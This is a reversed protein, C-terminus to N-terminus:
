KSDSKKKKRLILLLAVAAAALVAGVAIYIWSDTGKVPDEIVLDM